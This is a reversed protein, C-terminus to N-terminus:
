KYPSYDTLMEIIDLLEKYQPNNKLVDVIHTPINVDLKIYEHQFGYKLNNLLYYAASKRSAAMKLLSKNPMGMTFVDVGEYIKRSYWKYLYRAALHPDNAICRFLIKPVQINNKKYFEILKFLFTSYEQNKMHNRDSVFNSFAVKILDPTLNKGLFFDSPSLGRSFMYEFLPYILDHINIDDDDEVNLIVKRVFDHIHETEGVGHEDRNHFNTFYEEIMKHPINGGILKFYDFYNSNDDFERILINLYWERDKESLYKEMTKSDAIHGLGVYKKIIYSTTEVGVKTSLKNWDNIYIVSPAVWSEGDFQMGNEDWDELGEIFMEYDELTKLSDDLISTVNEEIHKFKAEKENYPIFQFVDQEVPKLLEPYDNGVLDWLNIDRDRNPKIPNWSYKDASGDEDGLADILIRDSGDKWYVFYTTMGLGEHHMNGMRYSWYYNGGGRTSICLSSGAGYQICKAKSDARYVTIKDDSYVVDDPNTEKSEVKEEDVVQYEHIKEFVKNGWNWIHRNKEESPAFWKNQTIEQRLQNFANVLIKQGTARPSKLYTMYEGRLVDFSNGNQTNTLLLYTLIPINSDSNFRREQTTLEGGSSIDNVMDVLMGAIEDIMDVSYGTSRLIKKAQNISSQLDEELIQYYECFTIM